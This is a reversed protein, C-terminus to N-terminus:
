EMYTKIREMFEARSACTTRDDPPLTVECTFPTVESEKQGPSTRSSYGAVEINTAADFVSVSHWAIDLTLTNTEIQAYCKGLSASYHGKWGASRQYQLGRQRFVAFVQDACQHQKEVGQLVSQDRVLQKHKELAIVSVRYQWFLIAAMLIMVFLTVLSKM